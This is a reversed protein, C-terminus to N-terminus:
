RRRAALQRVKRRVKLNRQERDLQGEGSMELQLLAVGIPQDPQPRIVDHPLLLAPEVERDACEGTIAVADVRDLRVHPRPAEQLSCATAKDPEGGVAHFAHRDRDVFEVQSM